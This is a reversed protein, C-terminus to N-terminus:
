LIAPSAYGHVCFYYVSISIDADPTSPSQYIACGAHAYITATITGKVASPAAGENAAEDGELTLSSNEKPPSYPYPVPSPIGLSSRGPAVRITRVTVLSEGPIRLIRMTLPSLSTASISHLVLPPLHRQSPQSLNGHAIATGTPHRRAVLHDLPCSYRICASPIGGFSWSSQPFVSRICAQESTLLHGNVEGIGDQAPLPMPQSM